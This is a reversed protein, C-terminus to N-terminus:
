VGGYDEERTADDGNAVGAGRLAATVVVVVV